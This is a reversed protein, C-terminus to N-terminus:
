SFRKSRRAMALWQEDPITLWSPFGRRVLEGQPGRSAGLFGTTDFDRGLIRTIGHIQGRESTRGSMELVPPIGQYSSKGWYLAPHANFIGLGSMLLVAVFLANGWHMIRVPLRHRYYKHRRRKSYRLRGYTKGAFHGLFFRIDQKIRYFPPKLFHAAM